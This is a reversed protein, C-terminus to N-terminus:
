YGSIEEKLRLKHKKLAQITATDPVPRAMEEHLKAELEAHKAQLAHIHSSVATSAM